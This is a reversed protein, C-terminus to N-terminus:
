GTNATAGSDRMFFNATSPDVYGTMEAMLLAPTATEQRTTLERMTEDFGLEEIWCARRRRRDNRFCEVFAACFHAWRAVVASDLSAHFRRFELTGYSTLRRLNLSCYRGIRSAPTTADRGFLAERKQDDPLGEFGPTAYLERVARVFDPVDYTSANAATVAGQDWASEHWSFESGTAYLPAMSPERWMWPRAFRAVVLDFEVWALFVSLIADCSLADGGAHPHCANVHVHVSTCSNATSSLAPAGAGLHRQLCLFCAIEGPPPTFPAHRNPAVYVSSYPTHLSLLRVKATM